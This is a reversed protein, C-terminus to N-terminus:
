SPGSDAARAPPWAHLLWGLHYPRDEYDVARPPLALDLGPLRLAPHVRSALAQLGRALKGPERRAVKRWTLGAEEDILSGGGLEPARALWELGRQVSGSYGGGGAEQLALLGLPAMADQHVAYVPYGEVLRGTRRDYHWWWQGSPGQLGCLREACRQAARLAEEHGSVQHYRSLAHIPYIQDAFSCVHARLGWPSAGVVHPFLGSTRGRSALLRAAVRERLGDGGAMCLAALAWALEVTPLTGEDPHLALLRQLARERDPHRIARAAWLTLAVDGRNEVRPLERLLRACVEDRSRGALASAADDEDEGALGILVIATYRLSTGEVLTTGAVRRVRFAFLGDEPRFMRPLGRLALTRLRPVLPGSGAGPPAGEPGRGSRELSSSTLSM